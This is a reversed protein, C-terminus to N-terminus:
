PHTGGTAVIKQKITGDAQGTGLHTVEEGAQLESGLVIAGAAGVYYDEGVAAAAGLNVNAGDVSGLVPQGASVACLAIGRAKAQPTNGATNDCPKAKMGDQDDLYFPMGQTLAAGATFPQSMSSSTVLTPDQALPM